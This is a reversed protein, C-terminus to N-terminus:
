LGERKVIPPLAYEAHQVRWEGEVKRFQLRVLSQHRWPPQQSKGRAEEATVSGTFESTAEDGSVTTQLGEIEVKINTLYPLGQTLLSRLSLRNFGNGDSYNEALMQCFGAADRAEFRRALRRIVRQVRQRETTLLEMGLYGVAGLAVAAVLGILVKKM